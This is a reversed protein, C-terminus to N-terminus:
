YKRDSPVDLVQDAVGIRCPSMTAGVVISRRCDITFSNFIFKLSELSLQELCNSFSTIKMRNLSLFSSVNDEDFIVSQLCRSCCVNAHETV